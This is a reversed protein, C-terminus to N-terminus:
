GGLLFRAVVAAAVILAIAVERIFIWRETRQQRVQEIASRYVADRDEWEPRGASM